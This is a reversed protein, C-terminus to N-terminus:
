DEEALNQPYVAALSDMTSNFKYIYIGFFLNALASLVYSISGVTSENVFESDSFVIILNAIFGLFCLVMLIWPLKSCVCNKGLAFRIKNIAGCAHFCFFFSTFILLIFFFGIKAIFSYLEKKSTRSIGSSVFLQGGEEYYRPLEIYLSIVYIVVVFLTVYILIQAITQIILSTKITTLSSTSIYNDPGTVAQHTRWFGVIIMFPLVSLFVLLFVTILMFVNLSAEDVGTLWMDFLNFLLEFNSILIIVANVGFLFMALLLIPSKGLNRYSERISLVRGNNVFNTNTQSTNPIIRKGCRSCYNNADANKAGCSSCFM